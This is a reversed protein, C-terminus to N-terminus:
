HRGSILVGVAGREPEEFRVSVPLWAAESAQAVDTAKPKDIINDAWCVAYRMQDCGHNNKDLPKEKGKLGSKEDWVYGPMESRTSTPKLQEVLRPDEGPGDAAILSNELIFIRAIGDGAIAIREAVAQIGHDIDKYAATTRMGVVQEITARGEADWDCVIAEPWPYAGPLPEWAMYSELLDDIDDLDAGPKRRWGIREMVSIMIDRVLEKTVYIELELYMREDNDLAWLAWVFPHTHGFDISWFRRWSQPLRHWGANTRLVHTEDSWKEYVAGEAGSWKGHRLRWYRPGTLEDLNAIYAKGRETWKGWRQDYSRIPWETDPGGAKGGLPAEEFLVPNDEHHTSLMQFKGANSQLLIWHTPIDPNCDGLLQQYPIVGNRLRTRVFDIDAIDCEILEQGYAADFETSMIKQPKDMGVVHIESGNDYLYHQRHSRQGGQDLSSHGTPLVKEEFTFLASESLSERTKRFILLRCGAYKEALLHFKELICRSKGTGAPGDLVMMPGKFYFLTNMAPGVPKYAKQEPKGAKLINSQNNPTSLQPRQDQWERRSHDAQQAYQPDYQWSGPPPGIQATM